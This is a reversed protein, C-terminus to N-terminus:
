WRVPNETVEAVDSAPIATKAGWEDEIVVFAGEYNVHKTYSGGDRGVHPFDRITGDRMKVKISSM